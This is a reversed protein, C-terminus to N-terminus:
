VDAPPENGEKTASLIPWYGAAKATVIDFMGRPVTGWPTGWAVIM